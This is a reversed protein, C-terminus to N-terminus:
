VRGRAPARGATRGSPGCAPPARSAVSGQLEDREREGQVLAERAADLSARRRANGAAAAADASGRLSKLRHERELVGARQDTGRSVRLWDRGVWEGGPTILSEGAALGARAGLAQALSEATLVNALPNLIVAPGRAHAALSRAPLQEQPM